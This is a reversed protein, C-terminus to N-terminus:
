YDSFNIGCDEEMYGIFGNMRDKLDEITEYEDLLQNVKDEDLDNLIAIVDKNSFPKSM